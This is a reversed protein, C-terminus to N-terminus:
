AHRFRGILILDLRVTLQDLRIRCDIGLKM